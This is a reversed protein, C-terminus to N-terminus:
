VRQELLAEALLMDEPTTIKINEYGAEVLYVPHGSMQELVRADDTISIGKRRLEALAEMLEAYADTILKREFVQPTQVIWVSSRDPTQLVCGSSDAIKVTDKSPMGAVCAQQTRVSEYLRKLADQSILPRAGDHIFVYDCPWTIARLGNFVSDYRQAGGPVCLRLKDEAGPVMPTIEQRIYEEEGEPVVLVIDSIVPSKVFAELSWALVPRSKINRYQKRPGSGMRTGSGAALIIATSPQMM